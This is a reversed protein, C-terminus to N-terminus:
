GAANSLSERWCKRQGESGRHRGQLTGPWRRQGIGADMKRERRADPRVPVSGTPFSFM